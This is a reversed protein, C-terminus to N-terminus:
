IGYVERFYDVMTVMEDESLPREYILFRTIEGHFSEEGPHNTADREQGIAMRSADAEPNVPFPVSGLPYPSDVFLEVDVTDVGAEMRGAVVYYRGGELRPGLLKPNNEDFRGFTIGNRSGIWVANDDEVNGWFGEYNGGNRLNGFFSNVDPLGVHQEHVMMISFWTYGSGTTAADFEDEHFNVLEQEEFVVTAHGNIEPVDYRISPRGSGPVERGLDRHVFFQAPSDAVQNRWGVVRDGDQLFIDKDADLDLLLAETVPPPGAPTSEPGACAALAAATLVALMPQAISRM